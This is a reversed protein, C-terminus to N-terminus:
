AVVQLRICREDSVALGASLNLRRCAPGLRVRAGGACVSVGPDYLLDSNASRSLGHAAISADSLARSWPRNGRKSRQRPAPTSFGPPPPLPGSGSPVSAPCANRWIASGGASHGGFRRAFANSSSTRAYVRRPRMIPCERRPHSNALSQLDPSRHSFAVAKRYHGCAATKM